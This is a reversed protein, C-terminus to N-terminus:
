RDGMVMHVGNEQELQNTVSELEELGKTSMEYEQVILQWYFHV